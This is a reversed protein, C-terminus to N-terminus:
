MAYPIWRARCGILKYDLYPLKITM